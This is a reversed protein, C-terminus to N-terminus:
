LYSTEFVDLPLAIPHQIQFPQYFYQPSSMRYSVLLLIMHICEYVNSCPLTRTWFYIIM